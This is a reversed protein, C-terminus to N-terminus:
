LLERLARGLHSRHTVRLVGVRSGAIRYVIRYDGVRFRYAPPDFGHLRKITDGRSHPNEQIERMRKTIRLAVEPSLAALDERARGSLELVFAPM